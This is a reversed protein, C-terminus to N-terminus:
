ITAVQELADQPHACLAGMGTELYPALALGDQEGVPALRALAELQELHQIEGLITHALTDRVLKAGEL